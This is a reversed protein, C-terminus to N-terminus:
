KQHLYGANFCKTYNKVDRVYCSQLGDEFWIGRRFCASVNGFIRKQRQYIASSLIRKFYTNGSSSWWATRRTTTPTTRTTRTSGAVASCATCGTAPCQFLFINLSWLIFKLFIRFPINNLPTNIYLDVFIDYVACCFCDIKWSTLCLNLAHKLSNTVTYPPPLHFFITAIFFYFCVAM